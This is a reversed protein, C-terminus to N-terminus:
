SRALLVRLEAVFELARQAGLEADELEFPELTFSCVELANGLYVASVRGGCVRGVSVEVQSSFAAELVRLASQVGVAEPLKNLELKMPKVWRFGLLGCELWNFGADVFRLCLRHLIKL